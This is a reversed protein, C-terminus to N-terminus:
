EIEFIDYSINMVSPAIFRKKLKYFHSFFNETKAYKIIKRWIHVYIYIYCTWM